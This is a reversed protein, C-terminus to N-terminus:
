RPAQDTQRTQKPDTGHTYEKERNEIVHQTGDTLLTYCYM